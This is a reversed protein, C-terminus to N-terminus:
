CVSNVKRESIESLVIGELGMWTTAFPLIWETKIASSYKLTYTWWKKKVWEDESPCKPQKWIKAIKFLAEIFM